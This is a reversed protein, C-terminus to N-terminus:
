ENSRRWIRRRWSRGDTTFWSAGEEMTLTPAVHRARLSAMREPDPHGFSNGRGVSIVAASPQITELWRETTGTNSGHHAVKLIDSRLFGGYHRSVEDEGLEELDGTLLMSRDGALLKIVVSRDNAGRGIFTPGPHLVYLRVAPDISIQQGRRVIRVSVGHIAARRFLDPAIAGTDGVTLTRVPVHDLLWGLGGTHDRHAHTIVLDDITRVGRRRLLPLIAREAAFESPGADILVTAGSFTQLLHADGQGVDITLVEALSRHDELVPRWVAVVALCCTAMLLFRRLGPISGATLAGLAAYAAAIAAVGPRGVEVVAVPLSATVRVLGLLLDMVVDNVGAYVSALWMSAPAIMLEIIGLVLSVGSLPVVVLNAAVSVLSVQGFISMTLPLTGVQAAASVAILQVVSRVFPHDRFEEPLRDLRREILPSGIVIALVSLFSLQFGVDDLTRPDLLLLVIAAVALSQFVDSTRGSVGATLVVIAMVSARVVSPSSGTIWLYGLVAAVSLAYVARRPLRLLGALVFAVLAVLAVNGGSVALIHVTGTALFAAKLDEALEARYGLIVGKLFAGREGAHLRDITGYLTSQARGLFTHHDIGAPVDVRTASSARIVAEVGSLSLIAGYDMDGPNRPRPFPEVSGRLLWLDGPRPEPVMEKGAMSPMTVRARVVRRPAQRTGPVHVDAIYAWTRTHRVPPDLIRASFPLAVDPDTPPLRHAVGDSRVIAHWTMGAFALALLLSLDALSSRRRLAALSALITIVLLAYSVSPPWGLSESAAIGLALAVAM